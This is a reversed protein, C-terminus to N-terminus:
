QAEGCGGKEQQALSPRLRLRVVRQECDVTAGTASDLWGAIYSCGALWCKINFEARGALTSM